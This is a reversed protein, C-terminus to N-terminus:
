QLHHALLVQVACGHGHVRVLDVALRAVALLVPWFTVAEAPSRPGKAHVRSLTKSNRGWHLIFGLHM